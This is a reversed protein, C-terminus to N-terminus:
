VTELDPYIWNQKPTPLDVLLQLVTDYTPTIQVDGAQHNTAEPPDDQGATDANVNPDDQGGGENHISNLERPACAIDRTLEQLICLIRSIKLKLNFIQSFM